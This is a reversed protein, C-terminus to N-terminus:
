PLVTVRAARPQVNRAIWAGLLLAALGAVTFSAPLSGHDLSAALAFVGLSQGMFLFFAFLSVAAGRAEPAMQTANVQLTNHFASFGAGAVILWPTAAAAGPAM